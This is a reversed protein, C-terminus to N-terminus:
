KPGWSTSVYLTNGVVIPSAENSRLSGLSFSYALTLKGANEANIQKLPSYRTNGYDHGAVVWQGPDSAAKLISDNAHVGVSGIALLAAISIGTLFGRHRSIM